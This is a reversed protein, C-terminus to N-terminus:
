FWSWVKRAMNGVTYNGARFGLLADLLERQKPPLYKYGEVLQERIVTSKLDDGIEGLFESNTNADWVVGHGHIIEENIYKKLADQLVPDNQLERSVNVLMNFILPSVNEYAVTMVARQEDPDTLKNAHTQAKKLYWLASNVDTSISGDEKKLERVFEIEKEAVHSLQTATTTDGGEKYNSALSEFESMKNPFNARFSDRFEKVKFPNKMMVALWKESEETLEGDDDAKIRQLIFSEALALADYTGKGHLGTIAAALPKAAEDILKKANDDLTSASLKNLTKTTTNTTTGDATKVTIGYTNNIAEQNRKRIDEELKLVHQEAAQRGQIFLSADVNHQGALIRLNDSTFIKGIKNAFEYM